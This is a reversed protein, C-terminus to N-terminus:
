RAEEEVPLRRAIASLQKLQGEALHGWTEEDLVKRGDKFLEKVLQDKASAGPQDIELSIALEPALAGGLLAEGYRGGHELLEKVDHKDQKWVAMPLELKDSKLREEMTELQTLLSNVDDRQAQAKQFLPHDEKRLSGLRGHESDPLQQSLQNMVTSFKEQDKTFEQEKKRCFAKLEVDKRKVDNEFEELFAESKDAVKKLANALVQYQQSGARGPDEDYEELRSLRNKKSRSNAVFQGGPQGPHFECSTFLFGVHIKHSISGYEGNVRNIVKTRAKPM